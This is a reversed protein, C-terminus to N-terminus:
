TVFFSGEDESSSEMMDSDEGGEFDESDDHVRYGTMHVTGEIFNCFCSLEVIDLIVLNYIMISTYRSYVYYLINLESKGSTFLTLSEGAM